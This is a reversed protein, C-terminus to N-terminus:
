RNTKSRKIFWALAEPRDPHIFENGELVDQGGGVGRPTAAAAERWWRPPTTLGHRYAEERSWSVLIQRCQDVLEIGGKIPLDDPPENLRPVWGDSFWTTYTYDNIARWETPPVSFRAAQRTMVGTKPNVLELAVGVQNGFDFRKVHWRIDTWADRWADPSAALAAKPAMAVAAAMGILELFERRDM